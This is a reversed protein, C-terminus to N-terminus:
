CRFWRSDGAMQGVRGHSQRSKKVIFLAVLLSRFTEPKLAHDHSTLVDEELYVQPGTVVHM